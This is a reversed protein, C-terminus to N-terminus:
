DWPVDDAETESEPEAEDWSEALAEAEYEATVARKVEEAFRNFEEWEEPKTERQRLLAIQDDVSYRAGIILAIMKERSIKENEM